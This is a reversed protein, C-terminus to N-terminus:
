FPYPFAPCIGPQTKKSTSCVWCHQYSSSLSHCMKPLSMGKEPFQIQLDRLACGRTVGPAIDSPRTCPCCECVGVTSAWISPDKQTWWPSLFFGRKTLVIKDHRYFFIVLCSIATVSQMFDMQQLFWWQIPLVCGGREQEYFLGKAALDRGLVHLTPILGLQVIYSINLFGTKNTSPDKRLMFVVCGHNISRSCKWVSLERLCDWFGPVSGM